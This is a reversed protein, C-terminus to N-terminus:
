SWHGKACKYCLIVVHFAGSTNVSTTLYVFATYSVISYVKIRCVIAGPLWQSRYCFSYIILSCLQIQSPATVRYQLASFCTAVMLKELQLQIYIILSCLQIHSPATVRYQLASFCTASTAFVHPLSEGRSCRLFSFDLTASRLTSSIYNYTFGDSFIM